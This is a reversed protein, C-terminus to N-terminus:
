DEGEEERYDILEPAAGGQARLTKALEARLERFWRRLLAAAAFTDTGLEDTLLTAADGLALEIQTVVDAMQKAFAAQMPAVPAVEGRLKAMEIHQRELDLAAAQVKIRSLSIDGSQSKVEEAMAAIVAQAQPRATAALLDLDYNRGDREATASAKIPDTNGSYAAIGEAICILPGQPGPTAPIRGSQVARTITGASVNRGLRASLARAFARVGVAANEEM